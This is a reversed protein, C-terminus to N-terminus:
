QIGYLCHGDSPVYKSTSLFASVTDWIKQRRVQESLGGRVFHGLDLGLTIVLM